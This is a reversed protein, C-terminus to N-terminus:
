KCINKNQLGRGLDDSNEANQIATFLCGHLSKHSGRIIWGQAEREPYGFAGMLSAELVPCPDPILRTYLTDPEM